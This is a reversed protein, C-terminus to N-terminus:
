YLLDITQMSQIFYSKFTQSSTRTTANILHIQFYDKFPCVTEKGLYFCKNREEEWGLGM